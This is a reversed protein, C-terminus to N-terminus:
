SNPSYIKLGCNAAMQVADARAEKKTRFARSGEIKKRPGIGMPILAWEWERSTKHILMISWDDRILKM